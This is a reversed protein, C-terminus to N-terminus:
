ADGLRYREYNWSFTTADLEREEGSVRIVIFAKRRSYVRVVTCIAGGGKRRYTEGAVPGLTDLSLQDGFDGSLAYDSKAATM